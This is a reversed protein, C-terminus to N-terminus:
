LWIMHDELASGPNRSSGEASSNAVTSLPVQTGHGIQRLDKLASPELLFGPEAELVCSSPQLTQVPRSRAPGFADYLTNDISAPSVGLRSAADRDVVVNAQL